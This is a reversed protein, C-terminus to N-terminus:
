FSSKIAYRKWIRERCSPSSSPIMLILMKQLQSAPLHLRIIELTCLDIEISADEGINRVRGRLSTVLPIGFDSTWKRTPIFALYRSLKLGRQIDTVFLFLM